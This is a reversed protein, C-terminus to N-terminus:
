WTERDEEGYGEHYPREEHTTHTVERKRPIFPEGHAACYLRYLVLAVIGFILVTLSAGIEFEFPALVEGLFPLSVFFGICFLILLVKTVAAKWDFPKEPTGQPDQQQM